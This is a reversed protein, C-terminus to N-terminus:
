IMQGKREFLLVTMILMTKNKKKSYYKRAYWRLKEEHELLRISYQINIVIRSNSHESEGYLSAPLHVRM